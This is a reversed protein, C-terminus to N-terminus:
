LAEIEKSFAEQSLPKEPSRRVRMSLLNIFLEEQFIRGDGLDLPGAYKYGGRGRENFLSWRLPMWRRFYDRLSRSLQFM